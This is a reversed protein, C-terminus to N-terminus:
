QPASGTRSRASPTSVEHKVAVRGPLGAALRGLLILPTYGIAETVDRCISTQM